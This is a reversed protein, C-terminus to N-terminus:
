HGRGQEVLQTALETIAGTTAALETIAGTTAAVAHEFCCHTVRGSM